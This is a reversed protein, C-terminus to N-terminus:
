FDLTLSVSMRRPDLYRFADEYDTTGVVRHSTIVIQDEDLLNSVNLQLRARTKGFRREYSVHSTVLTYPASYYYDFPQGAVNGIISRGRFQAGGGVSVGRLAGERFAYSTYANATYDHTGNRARGEAYGETTRVMEAINREIQTRQVADTLRQAGAQWAATHEQLYGRFGPKINVNATRPLAFNLKMRWSRTLNANLDLEYGDAEWSQTDRYGTGAIQRAPEGLYEWIQNIQGSHDGGVARDKDDTKYYSATGSVRGDWLEIKLGVDLGEGRSVELARGHIDPTGPGVDNFNSSYNAFFGLDRVPFFVLGASKSATRGGKPELPGMVIAGYDPRTRDRVYDVRRHDWRDFADRRYGGLVTVRNDWLSTISTLQGYDIDYGSRYINEGIWMAGPAIAIPPNIMGAEDFYRRQRAKQSNDIRGGAGTAEVDSYETFKDSRTGLIASFRQKFWRTEFQSSAAVRYETLFNEQATRKYEIESYRKGFGPNAVNPDTAAAQPLNRNVDIFVDGFIGRFADREQWQRNFATELFLNESVKHELFFSYSYYDADVEAGRPQMSYRRSPVVPMNARGYDHEKLKLGTGTTRYNNRWNILRGIVPDYVWHDSGSSINAVGANAAPAPTGVGEYVATRNWNSVQDNYSWGPAARIYEGVEADSRFYTNRFLKVTLAAYAGDRQHDEGDRWGQLRDHLGNVRLALRDRYHRNVDLTTRYGGWDDARLQVQHRHNFHARKTWTNTVGGVSADGFLVANPGRAVELRETNFSDASINWKFYNRTRTSGELGRLETRVEQGWGEFNTQVANPAWTFAEEMNALNLDDLFERTLVSVVSPTDRLLTDIRGGTLSSSAVYGVDRTTNVTFPSLAIAEEAEGAPSARSMGRAPTADARAGDNKAAATSDRRVGFAGTKEDRVIALATGALMKELAEAPALEGRVANTRINQVHEPPFLVQVDAQQSFRKLTVAADGAPVDFRRPVASNAAFGSALLTSAVIAIRIPCSFFRPTM